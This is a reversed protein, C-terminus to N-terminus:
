LKELLCKQILIKRREPDKVMNIIDIEAKIFEEFVNEETKFDGAAMNIVSTIIDIFINRFSTEHLSEIKVLCTGNRIWYLGVEEADKEPDIYYDEILWEEALSEATEINESYIYHPLFYENEGDRINEIFKFLKM